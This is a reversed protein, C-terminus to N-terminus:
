EVSQVYARLEASDPNSKYEGDAVLVPGLACCGLCNATTLSFKEDKTTEGPAIGLEGKVRDLLRPAGRVHCATGVCVCVNHSGRPHLSFHAYFTAVGYITSIPIKLRRSV